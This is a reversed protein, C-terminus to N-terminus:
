EAIMRLEDCPLNIVAQAAVTGLRGVVRLGRQIPVRPKLRLVFRDIAQVLREAESEPPLEDGIEVLDWHWQDRWGAMIGRQQDIPSAEATVGAHCEDTALRFDQM